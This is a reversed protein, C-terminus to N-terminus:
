LASARRPIKAKRKQGRGLAHRAADDDDSDDPRALRRAQAAAKSSPRQRGKAARGGRPVTQVRWWEVKLIGIEVMMFHANLIKDGCVCKFINLVNYPVCSDDSTSTAGVTLVTRIDPRNHAVTSALEPLSGPMQDSTARVRASSSSPLAIICVKPIPGDSESDCATVAAATRKGARDADAMIDDLRRSKPTRLPVM